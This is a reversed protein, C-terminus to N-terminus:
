DYIDLVGCCLKEKIGDLVWGWDFGFKDVFMCMCIYVYMYVCVLMCIWDFIDVCVYVIVSVLWDIYM